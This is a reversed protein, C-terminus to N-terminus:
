LVVHDCLLWANASYLHQSLGLEGNRRQGRGKAARCVRRSRKVTTNDAMPREAAGAGRSSPQQM